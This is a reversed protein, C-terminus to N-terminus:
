AQLFSVSVEENRDLNRACVRSKCVLLQLVVRLAIENGSAVIGQDASPDRQGYVVIRGTPVVSRNSPAFFTQYFQTGATGAWVLAINM